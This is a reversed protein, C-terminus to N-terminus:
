ERMILIRRGKGEREIARSSCFAFRTTHLKMSSRQNTTFYSENELVRFLAGLVRLKLTEQKHHHMIWIAFSKNVIALVDCSAALIIERIEQEQTLVVTHKGIIFVSSPHPSKINRYGSIGKNNKSASLKWRKWFVAYVLPARLRWQIRCQM